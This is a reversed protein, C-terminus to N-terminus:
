FFVDGRGEGVCVVRESEERKNLCSCQSLFEVSSTCRGRYPAWSGMGCWLLPLVRSQRSDLELTMSCGHTCVRSRVGSLLNDGMSVDSGLVCGVAPAHSTLLLLPAREGAGPINRCDKM